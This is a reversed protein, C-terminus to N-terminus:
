VIFLTVGVNMQHERASHEIVDLAALLFEELSVVRFIWVAATATFFRTSIRATWIPYDLHPLIPLVNGIPVQGGRTVVGQDIMAAVFRSAHVLGGADVHTAMCCAELLAPFSGPTPEFVSFRLM